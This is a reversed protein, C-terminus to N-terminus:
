KRLYRCQGFAPEVIDIRCYPEAKDSGGLRWLFGQLLKRAVNGVRHLRLADGISELTLSHEDIKEAARLKAIKEGVLVVLVLREGALEVDLRLWQLIESSTISCAFRLSRSPVRCLRAPTSTSSQPRQRSRPPQQQSSGSFTAFVANMDAKSGTMQ